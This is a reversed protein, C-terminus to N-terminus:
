RDLYLPRFRKDGLGQVNHFRHIDDGEHAKCDKIKHRRRNNMRKPKETNTNNNTHGPKYAEGSTWQILEKLLARLRNDPQKDKQNM